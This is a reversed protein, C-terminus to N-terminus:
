EAKASVATPAIPGIKKEYEEVANGLTGALKKMSVPSLFLQTHWSIGLKPVFKGQDDQDPATVAQGIILSGGEETVQLIFQSAVLPLAQVTEDSM